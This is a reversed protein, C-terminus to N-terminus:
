LSAGSGPDGEPDDILIFTPGGEEFQVVQAVRGVETLIDEVQADNETALQLDALGPRPLQATMTPAGPVAIMVTLLVAAAMALMGAPVGLAAWRPLARPAPAIRSMVSAAIDVGPVASIAERLDAAVSEWGDLHDPDAGIKAAVANWVDIEGDARIADRLASGLEAQDAIAERAKPDRLLRSAVTARGAAAIEGDAFASIELAPLDDLSAMVSDTVAVPSGVAARLDAAWSPEELLLLVEDAIDVPGACEARLAERIEQFSALTSEGGLATLEAREEESAGGDHARM